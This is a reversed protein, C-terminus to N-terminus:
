LKEFLFVHLYEILFRKDRNQCLAHSSGYKLSYMFVIPPLHALHLGFLKNTCRHGASVSLMSRCGWILVMERRMAGLNM